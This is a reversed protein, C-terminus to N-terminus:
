LGAASKLAVVRLEVEGRDSSLYIADDQITCTLAMNRDCLDGLATSSVTDISIV